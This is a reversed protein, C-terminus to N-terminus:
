PLRFTKQRERLLSFEAHTIIGGNEGDLTWECEDDFDITLHDAHFSTLLVNDPKGSLLSGVLENLDRVNDTRSILTVEFQGDDIKSHEIISPTFGGVSTSNSIAGLLFDGEITREDCKLVLHHSHGLEKPAVSIANLMYALFGFTNKMNQDTKYSVGTFSGFAAVYNFCTDNIRVLDYRFQRNAAIAEVIEQSTVTRKGYLSFAFDNCSGTPLYAVPIDLDNRVLYNVLYNLTGDGGCCLIAEYDRSTNDLIADSTLGQDPIIPYSVTEFGKLALERILSVLQTKGGGKGSSFNALLLIKKRM